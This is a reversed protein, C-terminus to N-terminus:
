GAPQDWGPPPSWDAWSPDWWPGEAELRSMICRGQDHTWEGLEASFRGEAVRVDVDDWDKVTWTGDPAVVFDLELDSTEFTKGSRRYAAQLNIYWCSFTREQGDWFHWVAYHDGPRHVMLCGHGEWAKRGLWPHDGGAIPWTGDPFTFPTGTPAYLVLEDPDDRVVRVPFELWCDGFWPLSPDMTETPDITLIERRTIIQGADWREHTM